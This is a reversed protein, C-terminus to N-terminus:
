VYLALVDTLDQVSRVIHYKGGASELRSQFTKQDESQKGRYTKFELGIFKGDIVIIIDPVGNTTFRSGQVDVFFIQRNRLINRASKKLYAEDLQGGWKMILIGLVVSGFMSRTALMCM